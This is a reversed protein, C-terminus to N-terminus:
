LRKFPRTLATSREASRDCRGCSPCDSRQRRARSTDERGARGVVRAPPALEEQQDPSARRPLTSQDHRVRLGEGVEAAAAARRDDGDEAAEPGDAREGDVEVQGRQRGEAAVEAGGLLLHGHGDRREEDAQREALDLRAREAVRVAAPPRENAAQEDERERGERARQRRRDLHQDGGPEQLPQAAGGAHGDRVGGHGVVCASALRGPEERAQGDDAAHRGDDGREGAALQQADRRPPSQEDHEREIASASKREARKPSGSLRGRSRREAAPRRVRRPLRSM